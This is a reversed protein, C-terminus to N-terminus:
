VLAGTWGVVLLDVRSYSISSQLVEQRKQKRCLFQSVGLVLQAIERAQSALLEGAALTKGDGEVIELLHV